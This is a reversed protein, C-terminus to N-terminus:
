CGSRRSSSRGACSKKKENLLHRRRGAGALLGLAGLLWGGAGGGACGDDSSSANAGSRDDAANTPDTGNKVETADDTGGMDTDAKTPDTHYTTVEEGDELGDGDSDKATPDSHDQKVEVGDSRGDGDSDAIAPLTGYTNVEEGDLLGDGDTDPNRTDTGHSVETQDPLGDDDDDPDACNPRADGDFDSCDTNCAASAEDCDSGYCSPGVGYGDQDADECKEECDPIGNGDAGNRDTVCDTTCEPILDNCDPGFCQPGIGYGDGDRDTCSDQENPIGDNDDDHIECNVLDGECRDRPNTHQTLVEVGDKVGGDDTDPDLPNSEGDAPQDYDGPDRDGDKDEAGQCDTAGNQFGDCLEDNDTDSRAPNTDTGPQYDGDGGTEDGKCGSADFGGGGPGDCLGDKDSDTKLPNTGNTTEGGDCAGFNYVGDCIGDGDTDPDVPSPESSGWDGHNKDGDSDEFGACPAVTKNGDCLGDGDTDVDTADTENTDYGDAGPDEESDLLGDGDSDDCVDGEDNAAPNFGTADYTNEQLSNPTIPCNDDTDPIGDHDTDTPEIVQGKVQTVVTNSAKEPAASVGDVDVYGTESIIGASTMTITVQFSVTASAGAQITPLAAGTAYPFTAGAPQGNVRVSSNVFSTGTPIAIRLVAGALASGATNTVTMTYTLADGAEVAPPTTPTVALTIDIAKGATVRTEGTQADNQLPAGACAPTWASHFSPTTTVKDLPPALGDVRYALTVTKSGGAPIAGISVGGTGNACKTPDLQAATVGARAAGAVTFSGTFTVNAPFAFCFFVEDAAGNGENFVRVTSTLTDGVFTSAHDVDHESSLFPSAVDLALGIAGVVFDDGEVGVAGGSTVRISTASQSNKLVDPNYWADNVPVTTIDWGTRAGSVLTHSAGNDPDVTHNKTGFTGRTDRTGDSKNIQSSFFNDYANNPGGLPLYDGAFYPDELGFSDNYYLADGEMSTVFISGTPDAPAPPTCFGSVDIQTECPCGAGNYRVEESTIWLNINKLPMTDSEYVVFLTWGCGTVAGTTAVGAVRSVMYRGAGGTAIAGTVNAWRAYYKNTASLLTLGTDEGTASVTQKVGGPLTLVVNNPTTAPTAPAGAVQSSCAWLLEAHAVTVGAPLDLVAESGNKTADQTTGVPYSGNTSSAFELPNAIFTGIGGRTGPTGAPSSASDLGLTNGTAVMDGRLTQSFVSTQARAEPATALLGAVCLFASVAVCTFAIRM